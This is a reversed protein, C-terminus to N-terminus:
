KTMEKYFKEGLILSNLVFNELMRVKATEQTLYTVKEVSKPHIKYLKKVTEKSYGSLMSMAVFIPAYGDNFLKSDKFGQLLKNYKDKIGMFGDRSLEKNLINLIEFLMKYIRQEAKTYTRPDKLFVLDENEDIEALNNAIFHHAFMDATAYLILYENKM